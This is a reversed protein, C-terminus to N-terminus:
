HHYSPYPPFSPSRVEEGGQQWQEELLDDEDEDNTDMETRPTFILEVKENKNLKNNIYEFSFINHDGFIFEKLGAVKLVFDAPQKHPLKKSYYKDFTREIFQDATEDGIIGIIM